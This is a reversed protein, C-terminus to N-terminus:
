HLYQVGSAADKRYNYSKGGLEGKCVVKKPGPIFWVEKLKSTVHEYQVRKNDESFLHLSPFRTRIWLNLAWIKYNGPIEPNM